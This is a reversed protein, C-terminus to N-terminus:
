TFMHVNVLRFTNKQLVVQLKTHGDETTQGADLEQETQKGTAGLHL